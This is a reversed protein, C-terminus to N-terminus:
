AIRTEQVIWDYNHDNTKNEKIQHAVKFYDREFCDDPNIDYKKLKRKLHFRNWQESKEKLFDRVAQLFQELKNKPVNFEVVGEKIELVLKKPRPAGGMGAEIVANSTSSMIVKNSKIPFRVKAREGEYVVTYHDIDFCSKALSTGDGRLMTTKVGDVIVDVKVGAKDFGTIEIEKFEVGKGTSLEEGITEFMERLSMEKGNVTNKSGLNVTMHDTKTLGRGSRNAALGVVEHKSRIPIDKGSFSPDGLRGYRRLYDPDGVRGKADALSIELVGDKGQATKGRELTRNVRFRSVKSDLNHGGEYSISDTLRWSLVLTPCKIWNSSKNKNDELYADYASKASLNSTAKQFIKIEKQYKLIVGYAYEVRDRKSDFSPLKITVVGPDFITKSNIGFITPIQFAQTSYLSSIPKPEEYKVVADRDMLLAAFGNMLTQDNHIQGLITSVTDLKAIIDRYYLLDFANNYSSGKFTAALRKPMVFGYHYKKGYNNAFEDYDVVLLQKNIHSALAQRDDKSLVTLNNLLNYASTKLSQPITVLQSEEVPDAHISVGMNHFIQYMAAYQVVKVLEPSSLGSFFDYATEEADYVPDEASIGKSNGPIYSVPLSGTRNVAYVEYEGDDVIYGAGATNWNYRLTSVELDKMVGKNFAWEIPKPYNFNVYDIMGNESWSKLMQDTVNLLSGYETHWLQPSLYIPAFDKGGPMKGAYLSNREYSQSLENKNTSALIRLTEVRMPPLEFIPTCRERGIIAVRHSNAIAGLILDADLSFKYAMEDFLSINFLHSRNMVWIVFGPDKSMLLQMGDPMSNNLCDEITTTKGLDDYFVLPEKDTVFWQRLEEESVQINLNQTSFAVHEPISDLNLFDAKYSTHHLQDSITAALKPLKKEKVGNVCIVLDKVWGDVGIGTKYIRTCHNYRKLSNELTQYTTKPSPETLLILYSNDDFSKIGCLQTNYPNKKRFENVFSDMEAYGKTDEIASPLSRVYLVVFLGILAVIGAIVGVKKMTSMGKRKKRSPVVRDPKKEYEHSETEDKQNPDEPTVCTETPTTRYLTGCRDCIVHPPPTMFISKEGCKRCTYVYARSVTAGYDSLIITERCKPCMSAIKEVDLDKVTLSAGCYPCNCIHM